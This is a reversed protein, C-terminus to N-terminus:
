HYKDPLKITPNRMLVPLIKSHVSRTNVFELKVGDYGSLVEGDYYGIRWLGLYLHNKFKVLQEATPKNVSRVGYLFLNGPFEVLAGAVEENISRLGNLGLWSGQFNALEQAAEEGLYQVGNLELTVGEFRALERAVDQNIVKLGNLRIGVLIDNNASWVIERAQEVTLVKIESPLTFVLREDSIKEAYSLSCCWLAATSLLTFYIVSVSKTM